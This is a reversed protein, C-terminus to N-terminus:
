VNPKLADIVASMRSDPVAAIAELTDTSLTTSDLVAQVSLHAVPTSPPPPPTAGPRLLAGMAMPVVVM